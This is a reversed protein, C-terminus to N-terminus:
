PFGEVADAEEESLVVDAEEEPNSNGLIGSKFKSTGSKRFFSYNQFKVFLYYSFLTLKLFKSKKNLM